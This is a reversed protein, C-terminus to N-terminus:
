EAQDQAPPAPAETRPQARDEAEAPQEGPTVPREVPPLAPFQREFVSEGARRSSLITLGLSTAMFVGAIVVTAKRLGSQQSATSFLADGGGGGMLGSFGGSRGAQILVVLILVASVIVHLTLLVPYM